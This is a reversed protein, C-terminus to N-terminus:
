LPRQGDRARVTPFAASTVLFVRDAVRLTLKTRKSTLVVFVHREALMSLVGEAETFCGNEKRVFRQRDLRWCRASDSSTGDPPPAPFAIGRGQILDNKQFWVGQNVNTKRLGSMGANHEHRTGSM